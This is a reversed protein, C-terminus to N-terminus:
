NRVSELVRSWVNAFGVDFTTSTRLVDPTSPRLAETTKTGDDVIDFRPVIEVGSIDSITQLVELSTLSGDNLISLCQVGQTGQATVDILIEAVEDVHSLNLVSSPSNLFFSGGGSKALKTLQGVLKGRHDGFGYTDYLIVETARLGSHQVAYHFLDASARKTIVYPSQARQGETLSQFYSSAFVIQAEQKVCADILDAGLLINSRVMERYSRRPLGASFDTALHFVCEISEEHVVSHLDERFQSNGKPDMSSDAYRIGERTCEVVEVGAGRLAECVYRGLFGSAGTVLARDFGLSM